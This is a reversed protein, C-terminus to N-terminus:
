ISRLSRGQYINGKEIRFFGIYHVWRLDTITYQIRCSISASVDKPLMDITMYVKTIAAKNRM